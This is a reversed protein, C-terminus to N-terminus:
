SNKEQNDNEIGNQEEELNFGQAILYGIAREALKYRYVINWFAKSHNPEILHAIEHIVVYDRVWHPMKALRHSLRIRKTRYNCSGFIKDQNVAYEISEIYLSGNFYDSNLQKAIVKLDHTEDLERKLRRKQFKRTFSDIAKNLETDSIVEPVYVFMTNQKIRASITKRRRDSRIVEIKYELLDM